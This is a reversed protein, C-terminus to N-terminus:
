PVAARHPRGLLERQGRPLHQDGLGHELQHGRHHVALGIHGALPQLGPEGVRHGPRVARVADPPSRGRGRSRGRTDSVSATDAVSDATGVTSTYSDGATDTLSTGVTDTLQSVVFRHEAGIQESAARAEDANGLRMFAVAANGRGLREKVPAPISRYGVVLGTGSIECAEILRDLM